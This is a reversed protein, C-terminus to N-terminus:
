YYVLGQAKAFDVVGVKNQLYHIMELEGEALLTFFFSNVVYKCKTIQIFINKM